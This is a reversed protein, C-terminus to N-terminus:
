EGVVGPAPGSWTHSTVALRGVFGGPCPQLFLAAFQHAILNLRSRDDMLRSERRRRSAEPQIIECAVRKM